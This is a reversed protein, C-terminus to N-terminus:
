IPHLGEGKCGISFFADIEPLTLSERKFERVQVVDM